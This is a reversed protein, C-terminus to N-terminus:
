NEVEKVSDIIKLTKFQKEKSSYVDATYYTLNVTKKSKGKLIDSIVPENNVSILMTLKLIDDTDTTFYVNYFEGEEVSKVKGSVTLKKQKSQIKDTVDKRFEKDDMLKETIKLMKNCRYVLVMGLKEGMAKADASQSVDLNFAKKIEKKHKEFSPLIALGLQSSLEAKTGANEIDIKQLDVCVEDSMLNILEKQEPTEQANIKFNITFLVILLILKKM